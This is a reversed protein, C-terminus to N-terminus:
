RQSNDINDCLHRDSNNEDLTALYDRMRDCGKALLDDFSGLHLFKARGDSAIIALTSGDPNFSINTFCKQDTPYNLECENYKFEMLFNRNQLDWLKIINKSVRSVSALLSGDPSVAIRDSSERKLEGSLIDQQEGSMNWLSVTTAVHNDNIETVVKLEENAEFRISHAKEFDAYEKTSSKELELKDGNFKWLKALYTDSGDADKRDSGLTGLRQGDPSFVISKVNKLHAKIPELEKGNQNFFSVTGNEHGTAIIKSNPSFSISTVKSSTVPFESLQKGSSDFLRITTGNNSVIAITKRDPNFSINQIDNQLFRYQKSEDPQPVDVNWLRVTGTESQTAIYKGDQSFVMNEITGSPLKIENFDNFELNYIRVINNNAFAVLKSDSSFSTIQAENIYAANSDGSLAVKELKGGDLTWIQTSFSDGFPQSLVIYNGDPSLSVDVGESVVEGPIVPNPLGPILLTISESGNEYAMILRGDSRFGFDIKQNKALTESRGELNWLRITQELKKQDDENDYGKTVFSQGNPSFSLKKIEYGAPFEKLKNGNWDWLRVIGQSDTTAIKSGDPSFFVNDAYDGAQFKHGPLELIPKGKTERDWLQVTGNDNSKTAILLKGNPQFFMSRVEMGPMPEWRNREKMGYFAKRLTQLVQERLQPNPPFIQLLPNSFNKRARSGSILADLEQHSLLFAESAQRYTSIEGIITQRLNFLAWATLSVSSVTVGIAISWRLNTNRRRQWVSQQVFQAEVQNFWYDASKLKKRLVELYPNGNWLFQRKKERQREQADKKIKSFWDEASDIKKDFWSLVPEAKGFVSTSQEKNKWELANPTLRRQLALDQQEQQQWKQLKDWSRVLFDHAPEVYPEGTEQGSVVLRAEILRKMVLKVRQNEEDDRKSPDHKDAYVLESSPVRRRASEGGEITVMRLMVRRMTDRHADDPLSGYEKNARRTLSGAVGGEKDFEADLTLARDSSEGAEWKKALKIYLESLTFSLLPLAGPCRGSKM